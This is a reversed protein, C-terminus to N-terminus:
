YVQWPEPPQHLLDQRYRMPVRMSGSGLARVTKVQVGLIAAALPGAAASVGNEDGRTAAELQKLPRRALRRLRFVLRPVEHLDMKLPSVLLHITVLM